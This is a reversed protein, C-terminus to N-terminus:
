ESLSPCQDLPGAQGSRTGREGRSYWQGHIAAAVRVRLLHERGQCLHNGQALHVFTTILVRSSQTVAASTPAGRGARRFAERVFRLSVRSCSRPSVTLRASCRASAPWRASPAVPLRVQTVVHNQVAGGAVAALVEGQSVFKTVPQDVLDVVDVVPEASLILALPKELGDAVRDGLREEHRVSRRRAHKGAAVDRGCLTSSRTSSLRALLGTQAIAIARRSGPVPATTMM